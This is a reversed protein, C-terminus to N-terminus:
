SNLLKSERAPLIAKSVMIKSKGSIAQDKLTKCGLCFKKLLKTVTGHDVTDEEKACYINKNAETANHGLKFKYLLLEQILSNQVKMEAAKLDCM